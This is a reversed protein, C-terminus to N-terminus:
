KVITITSTVQTNANNQELFEDLICMHDVMAEDDRDVIAVAIDRMYRAVQEATEAQETGQTDADQRLIAAILDCTKALVTFSPNVFDLEPFPLHLVSRAFKVLDQIRQYVEQENAKAQQETM